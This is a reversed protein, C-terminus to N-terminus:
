QVEQRNITQSYPSPCIDQGATNGPCIWTRLLEVEILLGGGHYALYGIPDLTSTIIVNNPRQNEINVKNKVVYQYARYEAYCPLTLLLALLLKM